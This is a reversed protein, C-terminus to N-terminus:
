LWRPIKLQCDLLGEIKRAKKAADAVILNRCTRTDSAKPKWQWAAM